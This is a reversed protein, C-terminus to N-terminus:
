LEQQQEMWVFGQGDKIPRMEKYKAYIAFFLDKLSYEIYFRLTKLSMNLAGNSIRRHM